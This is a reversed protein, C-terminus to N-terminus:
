GGVSVNGSSQSSKSKINNALSNISQVVSNLDAGTKGAVAKRLNDIAADLPTQQENLRKFRVVEEEIIQNLREYSIKM